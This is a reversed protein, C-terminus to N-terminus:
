CILLYTFLIGQLTCRWGLSFMLCKHSGSPPVSPRTSVTPKLFIVSHLSHSSSCARIGIPLSNWVPPNPAAVSFSRSVFKTHVRPVLMLNTNSSPLSRTPIHYSLLSRLNAPQSSNLTPYRAINAVSFLSENGSFLAAPQPMSPDTQSCVAPGFDMWEPLPSGSIASRQRSSISTLVGSRM